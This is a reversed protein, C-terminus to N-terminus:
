LPFSTNSPRVRDQIASRCRRKGRRSREIIQAREYEAIMGQFQLLLEEEPSAGRAVTLSVVKRNMMIDESKRNKKLVEVFTMDKTIKEAM